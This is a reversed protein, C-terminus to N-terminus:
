MGFLTNLFEEFPQADAPAEITGDAGYSLDVAFDMDLDFGLEASGAVIDLVTTGVLGNDNLTQTISFNSGSLAMPGIMGVEALDPDSALVEQVKEDQLLAELLLVTTFTDGDRSIQIYDAPNVEALPGLEEMPLASTPDTITESPLGALAATDELDSATAEVWGMGVNFYFSDGIAVISLQAPITEGDAVLDGTVDMTFGDPTILGDGTLNMVLIDGEVNVEANTAFAYNLDGAALFSEFLADTFVAQDDASLGFDADQAAVGFSLVFITLIAVMMVVLRNRLNIM